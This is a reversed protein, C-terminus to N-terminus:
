ASMLEFFNPANMQKANDPTDSHTYFSARVLLLVRPQEHINESAQMTCSLELWHYYATYMHLIGRDIDCVGSSGRSKSDARFAFPLCSVLFRAPKHYTHM